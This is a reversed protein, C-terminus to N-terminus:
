DRRRRDYDRDDRRRRDYRDDYRDDDDDRRGRDYYRDSYRDDYGRDYRDDRRSAAFGGGGGGYGGGGYGGGGGGGYGGGGYGGGGGGGGGGGYGGGGGGGYGRAGGALKEDVLQRVLREAKDRGAKDIGFVLLREDPGGAQEGASELFCFTGSEEEIARLSSGRNGTVYGVCEPPVKITLVDTRESLDEVHVPGNRQKLLWKLYDRARHREDRSGSLFAIHGVFEMVCGSARALKRRTSGDKGLAYSLEQDTLPYTDTGWEDDTLSRTAVKTFHGPNKTEVASMVKLEAGRRGRTPGFIALKETGGAERATERADKGDRQMRTEMFFMLVGWEEEIRGLTARKAGTVYGVTDRPVEIMTCDDRGAYDVFVPGRLQAFLWELYVRARERQSPTGCMVVTNGVYEVICESSAALKKRTGGKKGLAYSLESDALVRTETGFTDDDDAFALDAATVFGRMKTEVAALVKLQAGRRGRRPGFIALKETSVGASPGRRGRYEAFFMLTGWEEEISRLFNGQAGTVFGVAENPVNVTTLDDTDEDEDISVPGVRQAMVAEVYKRARRRAEPPGMIELTRSDEYLEIRAGSVRALKEKTKGQKGLIFAADDDSIEMVIKNDEVRARPPAAPEGRRRGGGPAGGSPADDNERELEKRAHGGGDEDMAGGDDDEGRSRPKADEFDEM